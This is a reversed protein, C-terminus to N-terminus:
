RRSARRGAAGVARWGGVAFRRQPGCRGSGGQCRVSLRLGRLVLLGGEVRRPRRASVVARGVGGVGGGTGARCCAARRPRHAPDAAAAAGAGCRQGGGDARHAGGHTDQAPRAPGTPPTTPPRAPGVDAPGPAPAGGAAAADPREGGSGEVPDRGSGRNSSLILVRRPQPRRHVQAAGARRRDPGPEGAPGARADVPGSAAEGRDDDAAAGRGVGRGRPPSGPSPGTGSRQREFEAREGRGAPGLLGRGSLGPSGAGGPRCRRGARCRCVQGVRGACDRLRLPLGRRAARMLPPTFM